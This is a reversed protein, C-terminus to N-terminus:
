KELMDAIKVRWIMHDYGEGWFDKILYDPEGSKKKWIKQANSYGSDLCFEKIGRDQLTHYMANLLLNGVGQRQYDPHVFVTGIEFLGKLAGNTCRNILEGTLAYEITGIIMSKHLAILFYRNEGNSSYDSELFKKKDEIENDIADTMYALGERAHTDTVVIKFFQHLEEKEELRPRRIDIDKM